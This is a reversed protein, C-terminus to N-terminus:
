QMEWKRLFDIPLLFLKFFFRMFKILLLLMRVCVKSVDFKSGDVKEKTGDGTVGKLPFIKRKNQKPLHCYRSCALFYCPYMCYSIFSFDSTGRLTSSLTSLFQQLHKLMFFVCSLLFLFPHYIKWYVLVFVMWMIVQIINSRMAKFCYMVSLCFSCMKKPSSKSETQTRIHARMKM